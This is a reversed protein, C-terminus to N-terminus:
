PRTSQQARAALRGRGRTRGALGATGHHSDYGTRPAYLCRYWAVLTGDERELLAPHQNGDAEPESATLSLIPWSRPTPLCLTSMRKRRSSSCVVKSTILPLGWAPLASRLPTLTLVALSRSRDSRASLAGRFCDITRCLLAGLGHRDDYRRWVM